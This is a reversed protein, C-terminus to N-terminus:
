TDGFATGVARKSGPHREHSLIDDLVPQGPLEPAAEVVAVPVQDEVGAQEVPEVLLQEVLDHLRGAGQRPKGRQVAESAEEFRKAGSRASHVPQM